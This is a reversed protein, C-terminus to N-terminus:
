QIVEGLDNVSALVDEAGNKRLNLALSQDAGPPIVGIPTIGAKRAAIMDDVADGLYFADKKKMLDLATEIGLPDPKGRDGVDDATIVVNFLDEIGQNMLFFKAEDKPRGTVIGLEYRDRLGELCTKELILRENRILRNKYLSQFKDKVQQFSVKQGNRRILEKTLKWDNNFGGEEKLAQIQSPEVPKQLYFEATEKIAVRYSKSVDALVGDMDFLIAPNKLKDIEKIVSLVQQKTGITIRSCNNLLLNKTRNRILIGKQKLGDCIRDNEEGFNVLIFNASSLYVTFGRKKLEASLFERNSKVENVYSNIYETDKLAAKGAVVALTNVNYPSKAKLINEAISKNAIIYGLRLGAIGFAKSFTRLIVLNEYKKILPISNKDSFQTYAEDLIILTEPAKECIEKIDKESIRTGTPNNPNVLVLIRANSLNNLIMEKPFSLDDNYPVENISAGAVQAYFAFMDFTPVPIVIKENDNLYTDIISKIGEDAGNTIVLQETRVDLYDALEQIFDDYEPYVALSESCVSKIAKLVGPSPGCTNENFDLRIMERRGEKPPNYKRLRQISKRPQIM